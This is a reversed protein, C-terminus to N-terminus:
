TRKMQALAVLDQFWEENKRRWWDPNNRLSNMWAKYGEVMQASTAEPFLLIPRVTIPRGTTVSGSVTLTHGVILGLDPANDAYIADFCAIIFARRGDPQQLEMEMQGNNFIRAGGECVISTDHRYLGSAKVSIVDQARHVTKRLSFVAGDWLDIDPSVAWFLARYVSGSYHERLFQLLRRRLEIGMDSKRSLAKSTIKAQGFAEDIDKQIALGQMKIRDLERCLAQIIQETEEKM